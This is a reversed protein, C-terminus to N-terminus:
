SLSKWQRKGSSGADRHFDTFSQLHILQAWSHAAMEAGKNKLHLYFSGGYSPVTLNFGHVYCMLMMQCLSIVM